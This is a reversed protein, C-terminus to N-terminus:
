ARTRIGWPLLRRPDLAPALRRAAEEIEHQADAVSDRFRPVRRSRSWSSWSVAELAHAGSSTHVSRGIVLLRRELARFPDPSKRSGKASRGPYADSRLSGVSGVLELLNSAVPDLGRTQWADRSEGVRVLAPWLRRDALTRKGRWLKLIFVDSDAELAEGVEYILGGAPHGWWSGAIPSGAVLSVVSPANADTFPLLGLERVQASVRARAENTEVESM